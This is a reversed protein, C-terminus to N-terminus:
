SNRTGSRGLTQARFAGLATLAQKAEASGPHVYVRMFLSGGDAHGLRAAAVTPAVGAAALWTAHSHRLVHPSVNPLGAADAIRRIGFRACGSRDIARGRQDVFVPMEDEPRGLALRHRRLASATETDLPITRAGAETKTTDRRIHIVPPEASLDLGEPGWVLRVAETIRCGSGLLLAVLPGLLSRKRVADDAYAAELLRAGEAVTLVRTRPPPPPPLLLRPLLQDVFCRMYGDKLVASLASAAARARAHGDRVTIAEIMNQATRADIADAPLEGLTRGTRPDLHPLVRLRLAAEFGDLTSDAYRQRSRTLAEGRRARHMFSIALQQLTPVDAKPPTPTQGRRLSDRTAEAWTVAEALTAFTREYTTTGSRLAAVYSPRCTCRRGSHQSLACVRSHHERVNRAATKRFPQANKTRYRPNRM